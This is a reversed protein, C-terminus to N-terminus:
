NKLQGASSVPKWKPVVNAVFVAKLLWGRALKFFFFFFIRGNAVLIFWSSLVSLSIFWVGFAL